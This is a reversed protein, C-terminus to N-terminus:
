GLGVDNFGRVVVLGLSRSTRKMPDRHCSHDSHPTTNPGYAKPVLYSNAAKRRHCFVFNVFRLNPGLVQRM